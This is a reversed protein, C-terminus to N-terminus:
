NSYRDIPKVKITHFSSDDFPYITSHVKANFFICSLKVLIDALTITILRFSKRLLCVQQFCLVHLGFCTARAYGSSFMCGALIKAASGPKKSAGAFHRGDEGRLM